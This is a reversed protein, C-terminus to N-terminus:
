QGAISGKAFREVKMWSRVEEKYAESKCIRQLLVIMEVPMCLAWQLLAKFEAVEDRDHLVPFDLSLPFAKQMSKSM